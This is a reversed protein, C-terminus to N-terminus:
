LKQNLAVNKSSPNARMKLVKDTKFCRLMSSRVYDGTTSITPSPQSEM